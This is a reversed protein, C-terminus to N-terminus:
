QNTYVPANNRPVEYTNGGEGRMNTSPKMEVYVNEEEEDFAKVEVNLLQKRAAVLQRLENNKRDLKQKFALIVNDKAKSIMELRYIKEGIKSKGKNHGHNFPYMYSGRCSRGCGLKPCMFELAPSIATSNRYVCKHHYRHSCLANFVISEINLIPHNCCDCFFTVQNIINKYAELRESAEMRDKAVQLNGEEFKKQLVVLDNVAAYEDTTTLIKVHAAAQYTAQDQVAQEVVNQSTKSTSPEGSPRPPILSLRPPMTSSKSQFGTKGFSTESEM